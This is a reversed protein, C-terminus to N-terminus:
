RRRSKSGPVVTGDRQLTLPGVVQEVFEHMELPTAITTFSERAEAFAQRVAEALGDITDNAEALMVSVAGQLSDRRTELESMQRILAKRAAAEMDPDVMLRTLAAIERDIEALQSKVRASEERSSGVMQEAEATAEAIISEADTFVEAFAQTIDRVLLDERVVAANDCVDKSTRQRVGCAYYYYDGKRNKSRRSYCRHGNECDILGTFPRISNSARPHADPRAREAFRRVVEAHDSAGIIRLSEDEWSVVDRGDRWEPVRHGTKRSLKFRRRNFSIKGTYVLNRLIARVSAFTWPGGRRTPVNRRHLDHAIEKFGKGSLYDGFIGRVIAAEGENVRLRKTGNEELSQYGYPPPGGTSAHQKFRQMLGDRTREALVRSYHESIVLHMGRALQDKGETVSVVEVGSDELQAIIASTEALNRGIRDYKYVLVRDIQGAEADALLRLLAERGVMSRGTRARDVYERFSAPELGKGCADLQVEISTGGDQAHSSYRAYIATAKKM